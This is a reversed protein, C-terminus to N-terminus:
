KLSKVEVESFFFFFHLIARHLLIHCLFIFVLCLQPHTLLSTTTAIPPTYQIESDYNIVFLM